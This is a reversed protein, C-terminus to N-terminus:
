LIQQIIELSKPTKFDSFHYHYYILLSELFKKRNSPSIKIEYYDETLLIEKWINSINKDFSAHFQIPEFTGTEPNLFNNSNYLPNLGQLKLIVFLFVLHSQMNNKNLALIFNSIAKYMEPNENENKLIQNLFDAIFFIISNIKIDLVDVSQHLDIKSINKLVGPKGGSALTFALENLPSLYAKYRNKGTYIGRLFYSEFGSDKTFCHVVANSDGQKIVSLLFAKESTM